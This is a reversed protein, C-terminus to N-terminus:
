GEGVADGSEETFGAEGGEGAGDGETEEKAVGSSGKAGDSRIGGAEVSGSASRRSLRTYTPSSPHINRASLDTIITPQSLVPCVSPHLSYTQSAKKVRTNTEPLPPPPCHSIRPLLPFM